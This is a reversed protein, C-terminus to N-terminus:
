LHCQEDVDASAANFHNQGIIRRNEAGFTIGHATDPEQLDEVFFSSFFTEVLEDSFVNIRSLSPQFLFDSILLDIDTNTRTATDFRKALEPLFQEIFVAGLFYCGIFQLCEELFESGHCELLANLM